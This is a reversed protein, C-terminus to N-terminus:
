WAPLHPLRPSLLLVTCSFNIFGAYLMMQSPNFETKDCKWMWIWEQKYLGSFIASIRSLLLKKIITYFVSVLFICVSFSFVKAFRSRSPLNLSETPCIRQLASIKYLRPLLKGLGTLKAFKWIQSRAKYLIHIKRSALSEKIKWIGKERNIM